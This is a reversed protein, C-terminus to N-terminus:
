GDDDILSICEWFDAPVVDTLKYTEIEYGLEAMEKCTSPLTIWVGNCTFNEYGEPLPTDTDGFTVTQNEDEVIANNHNYNPERVAEEYSAGIMGFLSFVIMVIIAIFFSILALVLTKAKKTGERNAHRQAATQNHASQRTIGQKLVDPEIEKSIRASGDRKHARNYEEATEYIPRGFDDYKPMIVVENQRIKSQM